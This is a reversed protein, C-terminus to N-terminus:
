YEIGKRAKIGKEFPHRVAAIESIYDAASLYKEPPERGTMVIEAGMERAASILSDAVKEDLLGKNLASFIEDLVLMDAGGSRIEKEADAALRNHCDTLLGKDKDTMSFSFGYNRDPRDVTIGYISRLIELEGTPNGKMFQVIYVRMGSGAARVALGVAATTKGKGNGCYIHMMGM